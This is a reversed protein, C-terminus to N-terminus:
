TGYLGLAKLDTIIQAIAQSCQALTATAGPFNAIVGTGTPTGFGTVQAPAANGNLGLGSSLQNSFTGDARLFKATGGGSAPVVGQLANTFTGLMATVQAATLDLANALSGTNNGKLTGAPMQALYANTVGNLTVTLTLDAGLTGGGTLPASTGVQRTVPVIGGGGASTASLYTQLQQFWSQWLPSLRGSGDSIITGPVPALPTTM